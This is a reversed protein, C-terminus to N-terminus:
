HSQRNANASRSVWTIAGAAFLELSHVITDTSIREYQTRTALYLKCSMRDGGTM